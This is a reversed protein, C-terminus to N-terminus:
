MAVLELDSTCKKCGAEGCTTCVREQVTQAELKTTPASPFMPKDEIPEEANARVVPTQAPLTESLFLEWDEDHLPAIEDGLSDMVGSNMTAYDNADNLDETVRDVQDPDIGNFHVHRATAKLTDLIRLNCDHTAISLRQAHMATVARMLGLSQAKYSQAHAFRQRATDREGNALLDRAERMCEVQHLGAINADHEFAEIKAGLDADSKPKRGPAAGGTWWEGLGLASIISGM